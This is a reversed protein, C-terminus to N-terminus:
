PAALMRFAPISGYLAVPLTVDKIYFKQKLAM